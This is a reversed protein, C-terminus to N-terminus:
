HTHTRTNVYWIETIHQFKSAEGSWRSVLNSLDTEYATIESMAEGAGKREHNFSTSVADRKPSQSKRLGEPVRLVGHTEKVACTEDTSSLILNKTPMIQSSFGSTVFTLDGGSEGIKKGSNTKGHQRYEGTERQTDAPLQEV